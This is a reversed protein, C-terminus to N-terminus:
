PVAIKRAVQARATQVTLLYCGPAYGELSVVEEHACSVAQLRREEVLVGGLTCLRLTAEPEDGNFLVRAERGGIRFSVPEESAVEERLGTAAARRLGPPLFLNAFGGSLNGKVESIDVSIQM